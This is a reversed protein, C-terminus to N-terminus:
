DETAHDSHRRESHANAELSRLEDAVRVDELVMNRDGISREWSEGISEEILKRDQIDEVSGCWRTIEGSEGYRPSGRSRMWRWAGDVGVVRYEVDILKGTRLAEKMKKITPELDEAHLAELWRLNRMRDKGLPTTQVWRSSAQLDNGEADM